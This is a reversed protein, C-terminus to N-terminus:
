SMVSIYSSTVVMMLIMFKRMKAVSSTPIVVRAADLAPDALLDDQWLEDWSEPEAGGTSPALSEQLALRRSLFAQLCSTAEIAVTTDLGLPGSLLDDTWESTDLDSACIALM